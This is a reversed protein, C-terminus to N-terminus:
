KGQSRYRLRMERQMEDLDVQTLCRRCFPILQEDELAMHPRFITHLQGILSELCAMREEAATGETTPFNRLCAALEAFIGRKDRHQSELLPILERLGKSEPPLNRRLRPFLSQDEDQTHLESLLQLLALEYDLAAAAETRLVPDALRLGVLANEVTVLSREIRQHCHQLHEIPDAVKVGFEAASVPSSFTNM